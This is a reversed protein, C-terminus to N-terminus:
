MVFSKVEVDGRWISKILEPYLFVYKEFRNMILERYGESISMPGREGLLWVCPSDM